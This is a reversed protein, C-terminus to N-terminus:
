IIGILHLWAPNFIITLTVAIIVADFNGFKWMYKLVLFYIGFGVITMLAAFVYINFSSLVIMGLLTAVLASAGLTVSIKLERFLDPEAHSVLSFVSVLGWAILFYAGFTIILGSLIYVVSTM